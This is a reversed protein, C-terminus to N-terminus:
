YVNNIDNIIKYVRKEYLVDQLQGEEANLRIKWGYLATWRANICMTLTIVMSTLITRTEGDIM